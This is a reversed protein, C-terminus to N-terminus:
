RAAKWAGPEALVTPSIYNVRASKPLANSTAKEYHGVEQPRNTVEKVFTGSTGTVIIKKNM